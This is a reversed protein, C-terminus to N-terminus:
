VLRVKRGHKGTAYDHERSSVGLYSSAPIPLVVCSWRSNNTSRIDSGRNTTSTVLRDSTCATGGGGLFYLDLGTRYCRGRSTRLLMGFLRLESIYPLALSRTRPVWPFCPFGRGQVRLVTRAYGCIAAFSQLYELRSSLPECGRTRDCGGHRSPDHSSRSELHEAEVAASISADEHGGDQSAPLLVEPHGDGVV